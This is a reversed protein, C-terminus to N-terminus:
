RTQALFQTSIWLCLCPEQGSNMGQARLSQAHTHVCVYVFVCSKLALEKKRPRISGTSIPAHFAYLLTQGPADVQEDGSDLASHPYLRHERLIGESGRPSHGGASM